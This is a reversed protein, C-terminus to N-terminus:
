VGGFGSALGMLPRLGGFFYAQGQSRKDFPSREPSFALQRASGCKDWGVDFIHHRTLNSTAEWDWHGFDEDGDVGEECLGVGRPKRRGWWDRV